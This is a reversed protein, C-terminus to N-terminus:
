PADEECPIAQWASAYDPEDMECQRWAARDLGERREETRFLEGDLRVVCFQGHTPESARDVCSIIQVPDFCGRLRHVRYGSFAACEPPCADAHVPCLPGRDSRALDEGLVEKGAIDENAVRDADGDVPLTVDIGAELWTPPLDVDDAACAALPIALWSPGTLRM